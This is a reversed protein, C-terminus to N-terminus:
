FDNEVLWHDIDFPTINEDPFAKNIEDMDNKNFIIDCNKTIIITEQPNASTLAIYIARTLSTSRSCLENKKVNINYYFFPTNAENIINQMDIPLNNIDYQKEQKGKGQSGPQTERETTEGVDFDTPASTKGSGHCESCEVDVEVKNKYADTMMKTERGSGWCKECLDKPLAYKTMWEDLAKALATHGKEDLINAIKILKDLLM